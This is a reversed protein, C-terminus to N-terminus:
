EVIERVIMIRKGRDDKCKREEGGSGSSDSTAISLTNLSGSRNGSLSDLSRIHSSITTPASSASDISDMSRESPLRQGDVLAPRRPREMLPASGGYMSISNGQSLLTLDNMDKLYAMVSRLARANAERNRDEERRLIEEPSEVVPSPQRPAEEQDESGNTATISGLFPGTSPIPINLAPPGDIPLFSRRKSSKSLPSPPVLHNPASSPIMRLLDASAKHVLLPQFSPPPPSGISAPFDPQDIMTQPDVEVVQPPSLQRPTASTSAVAPMPRSVSPGAYANNGLSTSPRSPPVFPPVRADENPRLKGMSMKKLFGWKRGTKDKENKGKTMSQRTQREYGEHQSSRPMNVGTSARARSMSLQPPSSREVDVDSEEEPPQGWLSQAQAQNRVPGRSPTRSHASLSAFRRQPSIANINEAALASATTTTSATAFLEPRQPSGPTPPALSSSGARMIAEPQTARRLEDASRMRRLEMRPNNVLTPDQPDLNNSSSQPIPSDDSETVEQPTPPPPSLPTGPLLQQQQQQQETRSQREREYFGRNPTTRNRSLPRSQPPSFSPHPSTASRELLRAQAPTITDDELTSDGSSSPVSASHTFSLAPQQNNVEDQDTLEEADSVDASDVTTTTVSTTSYTASLQPVLPTSPPYAPTMPSKALLPEILAKWPGQFLNGDVLLSELCPLTCLWSPLSHMKNRRISLTHLKDLVSLSAPITSIGTSDVLLVRLSTLHALFEPIVRLPNASINLEELCSCSALAPSLSALFNASIDLALLTSSIQPITNTLFTPVSNPTSSGGVLLHTTGSFFFFFTM